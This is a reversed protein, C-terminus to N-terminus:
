QWSAMQRITPVMWSPVKSVVKRLDKKDGLSLYHSCRTVVTDDINDIGLFSLAQIVLNIKPSLTQDIGLSNHRLDITYNGIKRKRSRGDTAYFPRAQVQLSLGLLNAAQAGSPRAVSGTQAAVARAIRDPAPSLLGLTPHNKPFDYIGRALKRIYGQANLRSLTKDVAPRSGIHLFDKATFVWGHGRRHITQIVRKVISGYSM